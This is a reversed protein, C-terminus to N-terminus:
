DGASLKEDVGRQGGARDSYDIRVPGRTDAGSRGCGRRAPIVTGHAPGLERQDFVIRALIIGREPEVVEAPSMGVRGAKGGATAHGVIRGLNREVVAALIQAVAIAEAFQHRPTALEAHIDDGPGIRMRSMLVDIVRMRVPDGDVRLAPLAFMPGIRCQPHRAAEPRVVELEHSLHRALDHAHIVNVAYEAIAPGTGAYAVALMALLIELLKRAHLQRARCVLLVFRPPLIDHPPLIPQEFKPSEPVRLDFLDVRVRTENRVGAAPREAIEIHLGDPLQRRREERIALRPAAKHRGPHIALVALFVARRQAALGDGADEAHAHFLRVAPFVGDLAAVFYPEPHNVPDGMIEPGPERLEVAFHNIVAPEFHNLVQVSPM